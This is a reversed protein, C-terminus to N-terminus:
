RIIAADLSPRLDTVWMMNTPSNAPNYGKGMVMGPGLGMLMSAKVIGWFIGDVEYDTDLINNIDPRSPDYMAPAVNRAAVCVPIESGDLTKLKIPDLDAVAVTFPPNVVISSNSNVLAVVTETLNGGVSIVDGVKFSSAPAPGGLAYKMKVQNSGIPELGDAVQTTVRRYKGTATIMGLVDGVRIAPYGAALIVGKKLADESNHFWLEDHDQIPVDYVNPAQYRSHIGFTGM